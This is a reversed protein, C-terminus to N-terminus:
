NGGRAQSAHEEVLEGEAEPPASVAEDEPTKSTSSQTGQGREVFQRIASMLAVAHATIEKSCDIAEKQTIHAPDSGLLCLQKYYALYAIQLQVLNAAANQVRDVPGLILSSILISALGGSGFMLSIWEQGAVLATIFAAVIMALGSYFLVQSLLLTLKFAQKIRDLTDFIMKGVDEQGVGPVAKSYKVQAEKAVEDKTEESLSDAMEKPLAKAIKNIAQNPDIALEQRYSLDKSAYQAVQQWLLEKAKKEQAIAKDRAGGVAKSKDFSFKPSM